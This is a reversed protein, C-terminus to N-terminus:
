SNTSFHFRSFSNKLTTILIDCKKRCHYVQFFHRRCNFKIFFAKIRNNQPLSIIIISTHMHCFYRYIFCQKVPMFFNGSYQILDTSM